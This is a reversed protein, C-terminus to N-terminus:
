VGDDIAIRLVIWEANAAYEETRDAFKMNQLTARLAAIHSPLKKQSPIKQHYPLSRTDSLIVGDPFRGQEKVKLKIM